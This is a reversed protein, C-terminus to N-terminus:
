NLSDKLLSVASFYKEPLSEGSKNKAWSVRGKQLPYEEFRATRTRNVDSWDSFGESKIHDGYTCNAFVALAYDRWPRALYISSPLVGGNVFNCSYFLFGFDDKLSNAPAVVYAENREDSISILQCEYFIAKGAGFVFDVSGYISSSVFCNLSNGEVYREDEPIFDLYRTALDDPLPGVFLTDQTTSLKVKLFLNDDGYIALAVEQGKNIPDKSTNEVGIEEFINHSGTVKLTATKWTTLEQGNEDKMKAYLSGSLLHNHGKIYFGSYPFKFNGEEKYNNDIEITFLTKKDKSRITECTKLLEKFSAVKIIETGAFDKIAIM